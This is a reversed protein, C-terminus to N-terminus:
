SRRLATAGTACGVLSGAPDVPDIQCTFLAGITLRCWELTEYDVESCEIVATGVRCTTVKHTRYDFNSSYIHEDCYANASGQVGVSASCGRRATDDISYYSTSTATEGCEAHYPGVDIRCGQFLRSWRLDNERVRGCFISREPGNTVTCGTTNTGGFPNTRVFRNKVCKVPGVKYTSDDGLQLLQASATSPVVPLGTVMLIALATRRM